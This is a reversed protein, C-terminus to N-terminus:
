VQGDERSPSRLLVEGMGGGGAPGITLDEGVPRSM